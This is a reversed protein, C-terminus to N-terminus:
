VRREQAQVQGATAASAAGRGQLAGAQPSARRLAPPSAQQSPRAFGPAASLLLMVRALGHADIDLLEVVFRTPSSTMLTRGRASRCSSGCAPVSPMRSCSVAHRRSKCFTTMFTRMVEDALHEGSGACPSMAFSSSLSVTSPSLSLKSRCRDDVLNTTLQHVQQSVQEVVTGSSRSFFRRARALDSEDRAVLAVGFTMMTVSSRCPALLMRAFTSPAKYAFAGVRKSASAAQM